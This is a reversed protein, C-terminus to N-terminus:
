NLHGQREKLQVSQSQVVFQILTEQDRSPMGLFDIRCYYNESEGAMLECSVVVGDSRVKTEEPYLTLELRIRSGEAILEEHNFALGCASINVEQARHAIRDLLHSEIALASSLDDIKDNLLSILEAATPNHQSLDGLLREIKKDNKAILQAASPAFGIASDASGDAGLLQISLGVTENIRFYRRRENSSM